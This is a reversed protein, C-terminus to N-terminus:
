ENALHDRNLPVKEFAELTFGAERYLARVRSRDLQAGNGVVVVVRGTELNVDVYQVHAIANFRHEINYACFPCAMGRVEMRYLNAGQLAEPPEMATAPGASLLAWLGVIFLRKM